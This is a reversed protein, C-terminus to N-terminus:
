LSEFYEFADVIDLYIGDFGATLIRDLYSSEGGFLLNQWEPDWYRVKYNGPWDPNEEHMWSPPTSNWGAQWYYRYDEAEGISFYCILKRVGGQPKRRIRDLDEPTLVTNGFFLDMIILDHNSNELARILAEKDVYNGYNLLYLFNASDELTHIEGDNQEFVPQPYTPIVDLERSVAGFSLYGLAKNQEYSDLIKEESEAYDTVLITKGAAKAIDLFEITYRSVRSPTARNDNRYGYFLSEQGCGDIGELYSFAPPGDPEGDLTVLSIGNQPVILFDPNQSKAYASLSKILDRMEQRYDMEQMIEDALPQSNCAGLVFLFVVFLHPVRM